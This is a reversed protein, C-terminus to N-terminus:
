IITNKKPTIWKRTTWPIPTLAKDMAKLIGTLLSGIDICHSQLLKM